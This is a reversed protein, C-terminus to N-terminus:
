RRAAGPEGHHPDFLVIDEVAWIAFLIEFFEEVAAPLEDDIV